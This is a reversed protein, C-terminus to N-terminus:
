SLHAFKGKAPPVLKKVLTRNDNEFDYFILDESGDPNARIFEDPDKTRNDQYYMPIGKEFAHQYLEETLKAGAKNTEAITLGNTLM